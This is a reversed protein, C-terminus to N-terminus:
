IFVKMELKWCLMEGRAWMSDLILHHICSFCIDPPEFEHAPLCRLLFFHFRIGRACGCQWRRWWSSNRSSQINKFQSDVRKLTAPFSFRPISAISRTGVMGFCLSLKRQSHSLDPLRHFHREWDEHLSKPWPPKSIPNVNPFISAEERMDRQKLTYKKLKM